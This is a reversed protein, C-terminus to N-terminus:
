PVSSACRNAAGASPRGLSWSLGGEDGPCRHLSLGRGDKDEAPEDPVAHGILGLATKLAELKAEELASASGYILGDVVQGRDLAGAADGTAADDEAELDLCSDSEVIAVGDVGNEIQDNEQEPWGLSADVQISGSEAEALWGGITLWRPSDAPEDTPSRQALATLADSLCWSRYPQGSAGDVLALTYAPLSAASGFASRVGVVRLEIFERTDRGPNNADIESLRLSFEEVNARDDAQIPTDHAETPHARGQPDSPVSADAEVEDEPEARVRDDAELTCAGCALVVVWLWGPYRKTQM